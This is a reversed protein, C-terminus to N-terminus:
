ELFGTKTLIANRLKSLDRGKLTRGVGEMMSFSAVQNRALRRAIYEHPPVMGDGYDDEEDVETTSEANNGYYVAGDSSVLSGDKSVRKSKKENIKVPTSSKKTSSSSKNVRRSSSSSSFDTEKMYAWVDEEQFDGDKQTKGRNRNNNYGGYLEEM